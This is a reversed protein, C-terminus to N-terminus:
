SARLALAEALHQEELLLSQELDAITRAVALTRVYGRGGLLGRGVAQRLLARGAPTLGLREELARPHSGAGAYAAGAAERVCRFTAAAAVRSQVRASTEEGDGTELGEFDLPPVEVHLDIRDLLPGSLRDRYSDLRSPTCQCRRVPHGHFGCPCPNMAAVITARAPFLCSAQGRSIVVRGDELPQRLAELSDRSFEPLEDLFLVGRHALSIEGPRPQSGGGVLAARSVSHHPARFPREAVLGALPSRVGAVSWVRTVELAENRQLPPLLSPLRRALMTKGAGPSGALLLHHGGAASIELARKAQSHGAVDALDPGGNLAPPSAQDRRALWRRGRELLLERYGPEKVARLAELLSRVGVALCGGVERAELLNAVPVLLVSIRSRQAAEAVALVGRVPRVLGDLAVEGVAGVGRLRGPDAYGAAALVSLAVPLDFGSGEKRLDAPPLNVTIRQTPLPIGSSVAGSRIRDSAERVAASPLGVITMGPLGPRVHAEVRVPVAEVGLLAYGQVAAM